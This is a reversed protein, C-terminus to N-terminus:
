GGTAIDRRVFGALGIVVSTAAVALLWILPTWTMASGPLQPVHTFPALDLVWQDFQLMPGLQSIVLAATVLGWAVATLRPVVGFLALAIGALVLVAPLQALAGGLVRPLQTGVDGTRLGHMVGMAAGGAALVVATGVVTVTLHSAAWTLRTVRTALVPEARLSTEESRLRLTAQVAYVSAVVGIIGLTGAIYADVIGKAGGIQELIDALQPNDRGLDAVSSAVGGVAFGAVAFGAAWGVLAGRQLRWALALPSRLVPTAEARGPRAALLGADVDRRSVLAYAGGAVVVIFLAALGFAWWREGAFPRVQQAWGLPSLWSLWSPGSDGASDGVARLLYAVGLVMGAMGNAARASSTLQAALAGVAAFVWAPLAIALGLALSGATELGLGILGGAILGAILLGSILAVILAATLGAYRGVIASGILEQRGAEEEARTHRVVTQFGMLGALVMAFGIRWATLGGVSSADFLPGLMARMAPNTSVSLGFTERAAATPYLDQFASATVITISALGLIWIPLKIRDLRLALRVLTRTGRLTKM